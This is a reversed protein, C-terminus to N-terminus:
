ASISDSFNNPVLQLIKHGISLNRVCSYKATEHAGKKYWNRTGTRYIIFDNGTLM